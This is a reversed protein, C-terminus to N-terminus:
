HKCQHKPQAKSYDSLQVVKITKRYFHWVGMIGTQEGYNKKVNM